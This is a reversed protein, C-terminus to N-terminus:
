VLLRAPVAIDHNPLMGYLSLKHFHHDPSVLGGPLERSMVQSAIKPSETWAKGGMRLGQCYLTHHFEAEEHVEGDHIHMTPFFLRGEDQARFTFAMPHVDHRGRRLKFVAFAFDRYQPLSSWTKEPLRFRRDLREFDAVSPVFSAEYAGVVEIPLMPAVSVKGDSRQPVFFASELQSFFHSHAELNHFKLADPQQADKVPLPLIMAVSRPTDLSMAYVLHQTQGSGFRAFIQTNTVSRIEASFCCM